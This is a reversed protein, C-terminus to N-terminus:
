NAKKHANQPYFFQQYQKPTIAIRKKFHRQFHSQDAFGLSLAVHALGQGEKLLLKAKKIRQDLQYAHPTQGYQQKFSRILHFSSLDVQECLQALSLQSGLEDMILQQVLSLKAAKLPQSDLKTNFLQVCYEILSGQALLPNTESQLLEFLQSFKTYNHTDNLLHQEFPLYDLDQNPNMEKQLNGLWQTNLFIMRYSWNDSQPNCSHADGPNITVMAGASINHVARTNKYLANGQDVVGFSFEDHSHTSYCSNTYSATRMEVFDLAASLSLNHVVPAAPNLSKM